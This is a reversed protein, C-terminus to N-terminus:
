PIAIKKNESSSLGDDGTLTAKLVYIGRPVRRGNSDRLDWTLSIDSDKDSYCSRETQWVKEGSLDFCEFKADLRCLVRDTTLKMTVNDFERSYFTKYDVFQPDMNLGVVFSVSSSSSNNANDWVTLKLEHAGPEIDRLPYAISGEGQNEPDPTYFNSVDDYVKTGDLTFTMRHGLGADSINIGSADSVSAIAVSSGHVKDGDAFAENNIYLTRIDPGKTDDAISEDYGYVYLNETSGNAEIGKAPDYAYLTLRAPTYNGTIESPMLITANWHGDSVIASGTALKAIRDDYVTQIGNKGNGHTQVSVEADFLTYQMPGNFDAIAGSSDTIRGHIEIKSRAKLTPSEMSDDTMCVGALSDIRVELSPVPIRLAPDGIIHYRLMNDSRDTCVNKAKRMVDGLTQGRGKADRLFMEASVKDTIPGNKSIYVSRSPTVVSIVGGAPNFLMVEAGSTESADFAGFSCTAAYLIPIRQNTMANMQTWTLLKEHGWEKPNAHGIYNILATGEKEWKRLLRNTAEPYEKGTGTMKLEFSDLYLREYAYHRGAESTTMFQVSSQAQELHANSDDDDAIVLVNNRWSGYQPEKVYDELKDAITEVEALCTAPIRGVGVNITREWLNRDRTEDELMGIFDDTCYSSSEASSNVSQWILPRPYRMGATEPNKMKQDFTPRGIILCHRIAHGTTDNAGRDHWMKLLKRYASLDANGSSFENYIKEPSIVHVTMGDTERHLRAIREAASMYQDPSIILMDPIPLSHLNQNSVAYRGPVGFGKAEPEFAMFERYGGGKIGIALTGDASDYHAKVPAPRSPDTVDWLITRDSAGSIKYATPKTPYVSFALKSDLLRLEREYEVEIWDLRAINVVGAPSYEIGISLSKGTSTVDKVTTITNYYTSGSTVAGIKDKGTSPLKEGNASVLISSPSGSTNAAFRIRVKADGTANGPLAFDFTQSKTIRFDEGLYERGTGGCQMLDKEYVLHEIFTTSEPLGAIDSLDISDAEGADTDRDSLFYYSTEGYPNISHTYRMESNSSAPSWTQNGVAYFSIGGGQQRCVSLRPLDDPLDSTLAESIMRGGYGYVNVKDPYSFGFSKLKQATITQLGPTSIDIKVWKGEALVSVPAYKEPAAAIAKFGSICAAAALLAALMKNKYKITVFLKM